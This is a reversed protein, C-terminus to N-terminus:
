RCHRLHLVSDDPAPATTAALCPPGTVTIWPPAIFAAKNNIALQPIEAAALEQVVVVGGGTEGEVVAPPADPVQM